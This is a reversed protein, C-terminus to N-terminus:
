SAAKAISHVSTSILVPVDLSLLVASFEIETTPLPNEVMLDDITQVNPIRVKTRVEEAKASRDDLASKYWYLIPVAPVALSAVMKTALRVKPNRLMRSATSSAMSQHNVANPHHTNREKEVPVLIPVECEHLEFSDADPRHAL